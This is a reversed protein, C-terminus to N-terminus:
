VSLKEVPITFAIGTDPKDFNFKATLQDFLKGSLDSTVLCTIVVKKEEQVLGLMDKFYGTQASGKAYVVNVLHCRSEFLLKVIEDKHNRDVILTLFEISNVLETM